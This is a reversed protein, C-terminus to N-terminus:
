IHARTMLEACVSVSSTVVWYINSNSEIYMIVIRPQALEYSYLNYTHNLLYFFCFLLFEGIDLCNPLLQCFFYFFPTALAHMRLIQLNRAYVEKFV